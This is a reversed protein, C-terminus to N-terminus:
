AAAPRRLGRRAPGPVRRLPPPRHRMIARPGDALVGERLMFRTVSRAAGWGAAPHHYPRSVPDGQPEHGVRSETGGEEDQSASM